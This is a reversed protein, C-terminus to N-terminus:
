NSIHQQKNGQPSRYTDCYPPDAAASYGSPWSSLDHAAKFLRVFLLSEAMKTNTVLTITYMTRHKDTKPVSVILESLLVISIESM